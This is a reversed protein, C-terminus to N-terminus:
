FFFPVYESEVSWRSMVDIGNDCSLEAMSTNVSLHTHSVSEEQYSWACEIFQSSPHTLQCIPIVSQNKKTLDHMNELTVPGRIHNGLNRRSSTHCTLNIGDINVGSYGRKSTMVVQKGRNKRTVLGSFEM